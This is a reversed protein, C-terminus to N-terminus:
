RRHKWETQMSSMLPANTRWDYATPWASRHWCLFRPRPRRRASKTQRADTASVSIQNSGMSLPIASVTWQMGDSALKIAAVGSLNKDTSWAITYPPTGGGVVGSLAIGTAATDTAFSDVGFSLPIAPAPAPTTSSPPAYIDLIATTDEATLATAQRYYPYMVAGPKDSHGLGLAHGLEHLVVSYLDVDAAIRWSESDDLHMDGALPEPNPPAPYFTHALVKGPGDFPYADGHSGAAFLISITKSGNPNDSPLFHISAVREWERMAKLIEAKQVDIGLKATLQTFVYKLDVSGQGPGDWGEGSRAVYQGILGFQSVAGACAIVPRGEVLDASAPFIYTVEDWESLRMVQGSAGRVLLQHDLLDPHDLLELANDSVLGKMEEPSTDPQFEVVFPAIVSPDSLVGGPFTVALTSIKDEPSLKGRWRANLDDLIIRRSTAIMLANEPVYGLITAGRDVLSQIQAPTPSQEFQIVYHSNQAHRSKSSVGNNADLDAPTLFARNKLQLVPMPAGPFGQAALGNALVMTTLLVEIGRLLKSNYHWM